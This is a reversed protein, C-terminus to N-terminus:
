SKKRKIEVTMEIEDDDDDDGGQEIVERIPRLTTKYSTLVSTWLRGPKLFASSVYLTGDEAMEVVRKPVWEEFPGIRICHGKGKTMLLSWKGPPVIVMRTFGKKM